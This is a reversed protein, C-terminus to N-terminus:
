CTYNWNLWSIYFFLQQRMKFAPACVIVPATVLPSNDAVITKQYQPDRGVTYTIQEYLDYSFFFVYSLDTGHFEILAFGDWLIHWLEVILFYFIHMEFTWIEYILM